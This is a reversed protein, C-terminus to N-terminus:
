FDGEHMREVPWFVAEIRETYRLLTFLADDVQPIKVNAVHSIKRNSSRTAPLTASTRSPHHIVARPCGM